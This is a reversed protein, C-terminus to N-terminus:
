RCLALTCVICLSLNLVCVDFLHSQKPLSRWSVVAFPSICPLACNVYNVSLCGPWFAESVFQERGKLLLIVDDWLGTRPLSKAIIPTPPIRFGGQGTHCGSAVHPKLLRSVANKLTVYYFHLSGSTALPIMSSVVALSKSFDHQPVSCM